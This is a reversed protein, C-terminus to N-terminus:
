GVGHLLAAWAATDGARLTGSTHTHTFWSREESMTIWTQFMTDSYVYTSLVAIKLREQLLM